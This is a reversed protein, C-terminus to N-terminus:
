TRKIKSFMQVESFYTSQTGSSLTNGYAQPNTLEIGQFSLFNVDLGCPYYNYIFLSTNIEPKQDIL